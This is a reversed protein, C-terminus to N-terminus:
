KPDIIGGRGCRVHINLKRIIPPPSIYDNTQLKRIVNSSMDIILTVSQNNRTVQIKLFDYKNFTNIYINPSRNFIGCHM